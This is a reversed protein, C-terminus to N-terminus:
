RDELRNYDLLGGEIPYRESSWQMLKDSFAWFNPNTRRMGVDDLLAKYDAESKISKLKEISSTIESANIYWFADPYSGLLGHVLTISDKSPERNEEEEFLSNVNYHASNRLATFVDINDPNKDDQIVIMTTEPMLTAQQAPLSDLRELAEFQEASLLRKNYTSANPQVKALYQSLLQYLEQQPNDTEFAIGSPQEFSNIDGELYDTLEPSANQYWDDLLDHRTTPPLLNLFNSEGEMRLFDMYLRTLLQHGYNGYVDFGAVLLYHIRELLAYDIVWATKTPQGVMGKVVTANDFHRFVTLSANTNDGDGDWISSVSLHEENKFENNLFTTRARMYEGQRKAYKVWNVALASSDKEAPLHLNEKQSTYFANVKESAAIDPDVFFVWFRDNIVNLAVQGRCVPGKIYGMITNQARELMFRYRSEVPLLTFATLPNAAVQPKYSPLTEVSFEADVFWSQWKDMLTKNIAYAQHTKSVITSHVPQLRYYVREVEPDDFPRRTAIIDLAQGPPTRSRVLKFFQPTKGKESIDLVEENNTFIVGNKQAAEKYAKLTDIPDAHGDTPCYSASIVNESISPCIESIEKTNKLYEIELGNKKQEKVLNQIIKDEATNRALRLNGEQKYKTRHDLIENLCSWKDVSYKALPIEAYHRGSQRVGALTWGSGMAGPQHKEIVEIKLGSKSLEFATSCGIIGAGVIVVDVSIM